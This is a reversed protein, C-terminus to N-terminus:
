EIRVAKRPRFAAGEDLLDAAIGVVVVVLMQRVQARQKGRSLGAANPLDSFFDQKEGCVASPSCLVRLKGCSEKAGRRRGTDAYRRVASSKLM